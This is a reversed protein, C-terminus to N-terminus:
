RSLGRFGKRGESYVRTMLKAIFIEMQHIGPGALLELDFGFGLALGTFCASKCQILEEESDGSPLGPGGKSQRM